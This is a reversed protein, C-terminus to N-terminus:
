RAMRSANYLSFPRGIKLTDGIKHKKGWEKDYQVDTLQLAISEAFYRDLTADLIM